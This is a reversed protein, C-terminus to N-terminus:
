KGVQVKSGGSPSSSGSHMKSPGTSAYLSIASLPFNRREGGSSGGPLPAINRSQTAAGESGQPGPSQAEVRAQLQKAVAQVEKSLNNSAAPSGRSMTGSAVNHAPSALASRAGTLAVPTGSGGRMGLLAGPGPSISSAYPTGSPSRSMHSCPSDKGDCQHRNRADRRVFSRGCGNCRFKKGPTGLGLSVLGGTDGDIVEEPDGHIGPEPDNEHISAVHRQLDHKRSFSRGGESKCSPYPCTYPKSRNPDPDHTSLHTNLNFARAFAKDCKPCPFRKVPNKGSKSSPSATSKPRSPGAVSSPGAAADQTARQEMAAAKALEQSARAAAAAAAAAAAEQVAKRAAEGHEVGLRRIAAALARQDEGTGGLLDADAEIGIAKAAAALDAGSFPEPKVARTSAETADQTDHDAILADAAREEEERTLASSIGPEQKSIPALPTSSPVIGADRTARDANQPYQYQAFTNQFSPGPALVSDVFPAPNSVVPAPVHGAALPAPLIAPAQIASPAPASILGPVNMDISPPIVASQMPITSDLPPITANAAVSSSTSQILAEVQAQISQADLMAIPTADLGMQPLPTAAALVPAVAPAALMSGNATASAGTSDLGLSAPLAQSLTGSVSTPPVYQTTSIPASLVPAPPLQVPAGPLAVGVGNANTPLPTIPSTTPTTPGRGAAHQKRAITLLQALRGLSFLM